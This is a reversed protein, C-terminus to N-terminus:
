TQPRPDLQREWLFTKYMSLVYLLGFASDNIPRLGYVIALRIALDWEMARDRLRHKKEDKDIDIPLSNILELLDDNEICVTPNSTEQQKKASKRGVYDGLANKPPPTWNDAPLFHGSARSTAWRLFAAIHQM